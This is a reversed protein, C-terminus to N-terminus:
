FRGSLDPNLYDELIENRKQDYYDEAPPGKKEEEAFMEYLVATINVAAFLLVAGVVFPMMTKKYNAREEISGVMYKIGLIMLGGVAIFTGTTRILGLIVNGIKTTNNLEKFDFIEAIQPALNSAGFLFFCGILYPMMTRKYEAKEELSGTMYKIGIIMIAGVAVFTGIRQIIKVLKNVFEADIEEAGTPKEGTIDGPKIAYAEPIFAVVILLMILIVFTVKIVKNKM